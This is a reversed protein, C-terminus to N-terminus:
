RRRLREERLLGSWTRERDNGRGSATHLNHSLLGVWGFRCFHPIDGGLLLPLYGSRLRGLPFGSLRQLGCTHWYSFVPSPSSRSPNLGCRCKDLSYPFLFSLCQKLGWGNAELERLKPKPRKENSM